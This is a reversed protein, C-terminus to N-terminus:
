RGRWRYDSQEPFWDVQQVHGDLFLFNGAGMHLPGWGSLTTYNDWNTTLRPNIAVTKGIQSRRDSCFVFFARSAQYRSIRCYERLTTSNDNGIVHGNPHYNCWELYPYKYMIRVGDSDAPCQFVTVINTPPTVFSKIDMYPFLKEAWTRKSDKWDDRNDDDNNPIYGDNENIYQFAAIGIQKLNNTCVAERAKARAQQLAPLLMAALISIIAIVVLLEILTFAGQEALKRTTKFM